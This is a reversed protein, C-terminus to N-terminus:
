SEDVRKGTRKGRGVGDDGVDELKGGNSMLSVESAVASGFVEGSVEARRLMEHFARVEELARLAHYYDYVWGKSRQPGVLKWVDKVTFYDRWGLVMWLLVLRRLGELKCKRLEARIRRVAGKVGEM